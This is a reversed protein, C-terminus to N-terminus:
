NVKKYYQTTASYTSTAATYTGDANKTYYNSYVNAWNTQDAASVTAPAYDDIYFVCMQQTPRVFSGWDAKHYYETHEYKAKYDSRTRIYDIM